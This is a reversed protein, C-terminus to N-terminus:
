TQPCYRNKLAYFCDWGIGSWEVWDGMETAGYWADPRLIIAPGHDPKELIVRDIDRGAIVFGAEPDTFIEVLCVGSIGGLVPM